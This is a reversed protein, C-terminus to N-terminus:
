DPARSGPDRLPVLTSLGRALPAQSQAQQAVVPEAADNHLPRDGPVSQIDRAALIAAGYRVRSGPSYVWKMEGSPEFSRLVTSVEFM